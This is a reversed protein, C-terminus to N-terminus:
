WMIFRPSWVLGLLIEGDDRRLSECYVGSLCIWIIVIVLYLNRMMFGDCDLELMVLDMVMVDDSWLM